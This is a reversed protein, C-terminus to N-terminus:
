HKITGQLRAWDGQVVPASVSFNEEYAESLRPIQSALLGSIAWQGVPQLLTQFHDRLGLLPEALINAILVDACAQSNALLNPAGLTLQKAVGNKQANAQTAQLAQPDTDIAIVSHAGLLLAAIGLIGSGCGYDIVVKGSLPIQCLWALCLQTTPHTGTGFALGPDLLLRVVNAPSPTTPWLDASYVEPPHPDPTKPDSIADSAQEDFDTPTILLRNEILLPKFHKLWERSWQRDALGEWRLDVIEHQSLETQLQERMLGDAMSQASFLGTVRTNQWLPSAGPEPEWLADAEDTEALTIALAGATILTDQLADVASVPATAHVQIWDAAQSPAEATTDQSM